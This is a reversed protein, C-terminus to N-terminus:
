FGLGLLVWVSGDADLRAVKGARSQTNGGANTKSVTQDDVLYCDSGVSAQVVADGGSNGFKYVGVEVDVSLDGNAGSSNDVDAQAVGMVILSTATAAPKAYGTSDVVVMSGKYIKTSAKVPVNIRDRIHGQRLTNRSKTLAAM